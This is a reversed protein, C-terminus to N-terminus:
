GLGDRGGTKDATPNASSPHQALWAMWTFYIMSFGGLAAAVGKAGFYAAGCTTLIVGLIATAIKTTTMAASKMDSMLKLELMQGTAFVGGALIMWPLLPSIAHYRPAVLIAFIWEHLWAAFLFAAATVGSCMLTIRWALRHVAHNRHPDTADGSRQYLIPGLFTMALGTLQRIPAYGLQFVVAYLGVDATTTFAQLAWRDSAQQAWTFLGWASFPWSYAVIQRVWDPTGHSTKGMSPILRRLFLLQSGTVLISSFTYGLVVAASTSGLWFMVAVALLIKLWADLGGHFAVVARQRAANQIANMSGNFGTVVSFLLAAVTLGLWRSYGLWLLGAALLLAIVTVAGTAYAMLRRAAALYGRLDNAEAAISYFRCIGNILGGMVVQNVLAAVTLGLSLQGYQAPALYETLVRVLVLSGAVSAIQGILIWIGERALRRYRTHFVPALIRFKGEVVIQTKCELVPPTPAATPRITM